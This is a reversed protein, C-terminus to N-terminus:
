ALLNKLYEISREVMLKDQVKKDIGKKYNPWGVEVILHLGNAHPSRKDLLDIARPIDVNGEGLACGRAQYPILNDDCSDFDIVQMDKIHTTIAYEALLEVDDNPDCYVTYGNATDLASGVFPSNVASFIEAFERGTFDCHNEVAFYMGEEEFIKAAEKLNDILFQLHQKIPIKKNFRSTETILRGYGNRMIKVGLLQARKINEIVTARALKANSGTLSYVEYPAGIELEVNKSDIFEKLIKLSRDDKPISSVVHLVKCGLEAAKDVQWKIYELPDTIEMPPTYVFSVYGIKMTNKYSM